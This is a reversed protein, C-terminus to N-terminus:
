LNFRYIKDTNRIEQALALVSSVSTLNAVLERVSRGVDQVVVVM